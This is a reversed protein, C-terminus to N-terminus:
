SGAGYLEKLNLQYVSQSAAEKDRKIDEKM